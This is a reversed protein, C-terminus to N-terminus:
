GPERSGIQGRFWYVLWGVYEHLAGDLMALNSSSVCVQPVSAREVEFGARLFSGEARRMHISDTVVVVRRIGKAGLVRSSFLANEWTNRSDVELVIADPPVGLRRALDAMEVGVPIGRSARTPGGTFVLVPARGARWLDVGKMTRRFAPVSVGCPKWYDAGLVVIADANGGTDPRQLPRVIWDAIATVQVVVYLVVIASAGALFGLVFPKRAPRRLIM